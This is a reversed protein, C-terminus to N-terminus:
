EYENDERMCPDCGKRRPPKNHPPQDCRRMDVLIVDGGVTKVRRIDIFIDPCSKFWNFGRKGPVMFGLVRSEPFTFIIDGVKGYSRGDAINIVEKERLEHYSVEM